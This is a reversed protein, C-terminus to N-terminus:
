EEGIGNNEELYKILRNNLVATFLKAMCSLISIPRYSDPDDKPGKKKYIPKIIGTKWSDPISGSSYVINFLKVYVPMMYHITSKLYENLIQDHGAAKNNKLNMIAYSIETEKIDEDLM